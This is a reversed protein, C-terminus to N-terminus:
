QGLAPRTDPAGDGVDRRCYRCVSAAAPIYSRCHPCLKQAGSESEIAVRPQALQTLDPASEIPQASIMPGAANQTPIGIFGCRECMYTRDWQAYLAPWTKANWSGNVCVVIIAIVVGLWLVPWVLAFVTLIIAWVVPAAVNKKRPPSAKASAATIHAGRASVITLGHEYVLALKRVNESSCQRCFV